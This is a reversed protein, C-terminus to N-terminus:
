APWRTLTPRWRRRAAYIGQMAAVLDAPYVGALREWVDGTTDHVPNAATTRKYPTIQVRPSKFDVVQLEDIDVLDWQLRPRARLMANALSADMGRALDDRVPRYGAPEILAAPVLWPIFGCPARDDQHAFVSLEAGDPSVLALWQSTVPRFGDPCARGILEPLCWDDTGIPVIIDAAWERCAFEFGTNWKRGVPENAQRIVHFGLDDAVRANGDDAIVVCGAEVGGAALEVCVRRRQELCVAAIDLRGHGPTVFMVRV